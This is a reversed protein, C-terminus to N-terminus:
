VGVRASWWWLGGKGERQGRLLRWIGGYPYRVGGEETLVRGM